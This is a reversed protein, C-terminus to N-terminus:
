DSPKAISVADTEDMSLALRDDGFSLVFRADLPETSTVESTITGDTVYGFFEWLPTNWLSVGNEWLYGIAAPHCAAIAELPVTLVFGCERCTNVYGYRHDGALDFGEVSTTIRGACEPCLGARLQIVDSWIRHGFSEVIEGPSRGTSQSQPFGDVILTSGCEGCHIRFQEDELAAILSRAECHICVGEIERDAFTSASELAGSRIARTIKAGSHTLHYGDATQALFPGVLRDLHYAFQSSSDIEVADYLDSFSRTPFPTATETGADVLAYLIELRRRDGLAGMAEAVTEGGGNSPEDSSM